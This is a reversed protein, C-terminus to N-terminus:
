YSTKSGDSLEGELIGDDSAPMQVETRAAGPVNINVQLLPNALIREIVDEATDGSREADKYKGSARFYTDVAKLRTAHAPLGGITDADLAGRLREVAKPYLAQFERETDKLLRGIEALSLPDSLILSCRSVTVGSAEAIENNSIGSLHLKIMEKHKAKLKKLPKAGNPLRDGNVKEELYQPDIPTEEEIDPIIQEALSSSPINM